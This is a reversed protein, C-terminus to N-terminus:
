EHNVTQKKLQIDLDETSMKVESAEFKRDNISKLEISPNHEKIKISNFLNLDAQKILEAGRIFSPRRLKRLRVTDINRMRFSRSRTKFLGILKLDILDKSKRSPFKLSFLTDEDPVLFFVDEFQLFFANKVRLKVVDQGNDSLHKFVVYEPEKNKSRLIIFLKRFCTKFNILFGKLINFLLM